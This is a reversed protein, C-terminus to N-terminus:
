ASTGFCERGGTGPNFGLSEAPLTTAYESPQILKSFFPILLEHEFNVISARVFTIPFAGGTSNFNRDLYELKINDDTLGKISVTSGPNESHGYLAIHRIKEHNPPCVVAVRAARQTVSDLTNWVYEMRAIEVIGFLVIFFLPTLFALEIAALGRQRYM